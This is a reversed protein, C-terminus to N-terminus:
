RLLQLPVPPTTRIQMVSIDTVYLAMMAVSKPLVRKEFYIKFYSQGRVTIM